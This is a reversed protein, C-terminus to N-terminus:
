SGAVIYLETDVGVAGQAYRFGAINEYGQITIVGDSPAATFGSLLDVTESSPSVGPTHTFAYLISGAKVVLQMTTMRAYGPGTLFDEPLTYVGTDGNPLTVRKAKQYTM